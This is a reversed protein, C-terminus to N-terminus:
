SYMGFPPLSIKGPEVLKDIMNKNIQLPFEINKINMSSLFKEVIDKLYKNDSDLNIIKLLNIKSFM